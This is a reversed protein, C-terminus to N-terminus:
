FLEGADFDRASTAHLLRLSLKDESRERNGPEHLYYLLFLGDNKPCTSFTM